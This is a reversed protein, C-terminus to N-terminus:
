VQREPDPKNQKVCNGMGDKKRCIIHNQKEKHSFLVGNRIYVVKEKGM